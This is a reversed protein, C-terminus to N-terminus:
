ASIQRSSTILVVYSTDRCVYRKLAKNKGRMRKKEREERIHIATEGQDDGDNGSTVETEDARNNVRLRDLRPLRAYPVSEDANHPKTPALSGVFSPDLTIM